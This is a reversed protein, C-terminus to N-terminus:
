KASPLEVIVRLGGEARNEARVEGGHARIITRAISLGLGIGGTDMSRSGEIRVFPEFVDDLRDPPIGPGDDDITIRPGAETDRLAIRARQGYRVANEILNRIARVLSQHRCPYTLRDPGSYTVDDGLEAHDEALSQLLSAIDVPTTPESTAEERAFSLTSEIMAQMEDLTQLIRAKIEEDEIFEARLRLTTIPTRLDHSIAALMRTRDSVFRSLREQMDNFTAVVQRVDQPGTEPLPDVQEGRGFREASSRLAFLPKTIRRALFYGATLAIVIVLALSAILPGAWLGPPETRGSLNLWRGDPLSVSMAWHRVNRLARRRWRRFPGGDSDRPRRWFHDHDDDSHDRWHDRRRRQWERDADEDFVEIRVRIDADGALRRRLLRTFDAVLSADSSQEVLPTETISYRAFPPSAAALLPQHLRDPAEILIQHLGATREAILDYAARRVVLRHQVTLVVLTTAQLLLVVIVLLALFQGLISRPWLRIM